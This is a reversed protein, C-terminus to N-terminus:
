KLLLDAASTAAYSLAKPYVRFDFGRLWPVAIKYVKYSKNFKKSKSFEIPNLDLHIDILKYEKTLEEETLYIKDIFNEQDYVALDTHTGEEVMQSFKYKRRELLNIDNRVFGNKYLESHLWTGIDNMYEAEKYLRTFVDKIKPHSEKYYIIHAGNRIDNNYIVITNAYTTVRRKQISDCGISITINPDKKYIEMLYEVINPIKERKSGSGFKIFRSSYM